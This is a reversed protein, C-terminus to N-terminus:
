APSDANADDGAEDPPITSVIVQSPRVVRDYLQFGAQTVMLVTNEPHEESPQQLIAQHLSPDFPAYLAEIRRCHHRELVTEFQQLVLKVGSLLAGSEQSKEAAQIARDLNDLVPLLDRLLPIFAYRREDDMERRVRKRYNDLEAQCRLRSDKAEALEQRLKGLEEALGTADAVPPQDAAPPSEQPTKDAM